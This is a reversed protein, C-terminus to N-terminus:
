VGTVKATRYTAARICAAEVEFARVETIAGGQGLNNATCYRHIAAICAPEQAQSPSTCGAHQARLVSIDLLGYWSYPVCALGVVGSGLEQVMGVGTKDISICFRHASSYCGVSQTAGNCNPLDGYAINGYWSTQACLFGLEDSGVEQPYGAGGYQNDSCYRHFAAMCAPSRSLSVSNCGSHYQNLAAPLQAVARQASSFLVNIFLASYLMM